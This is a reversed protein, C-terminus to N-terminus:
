KREAKIQTVVKDCYPCKITEYETNDESVDIKISDPSESIVTKANGRSFLFHNEPIEIEEEDNIYYPSNMFSCLTTCDFPCTKCSTSNRCTDVIEGITFDRVNKKITEAM